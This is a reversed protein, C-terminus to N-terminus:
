GRGGGAAIVKRFGALEAARSALMNWTAAVSEPTLAAAVVSPHNLVALYVARGARGLTTWTRAGMGINAQM